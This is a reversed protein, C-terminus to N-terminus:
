VHPFSQRGHDDVRQRAPVTGYLVTFKLAQRLGKTGTGYRYQLVPPVYASYTQRTFVSRVTRVYRHRYRYVTGYRHRVTCLKAALASFATGAPLVGLLRCALGHEQYRVPVVTVKQHRVM